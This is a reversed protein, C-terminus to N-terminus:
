GGCPVFVQTGLFGVSGFCLAELVPISHPVSPLTGTWVWFSGTDPLAPVPQSFESINAKFILTKNEQFLAFVFFM